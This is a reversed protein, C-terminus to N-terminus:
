QSLPAHSLILIVAGIIHAHFARKSFEDLAIQLADTVNRSNYFPSVGVRTSIDHEAICKIADYNGQSLAFLASTAVVGYDVLRRHKLDMYLDKFEKGKSPDSALAFLAQWLGMAEERDVQPANNSM